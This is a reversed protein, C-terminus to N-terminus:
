AVLPLKAAQDPPVLSAVEIVQSVEPMARFRDRLAIAEERSRRYSLAHWSAGTTHDLLTREWRVPDLNQAQLELLNHDYGIRTAATGLVAVLCVSAALVLGARQRLWPLWTDDRPLMSLVGTQPLLGRRDFVMLCAPLVTFCAFACLLVGCGAIWGLEGVAKF